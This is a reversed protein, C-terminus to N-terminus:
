VVKGGGDVGMVKTSFEVNCKDYRWNIMCTVTAYPARLRFRRRRLFIERDRLGSEARKAPDRKAVRTIDANCPMSSNRREGGAGKGRIGGEFRKRLSPGM